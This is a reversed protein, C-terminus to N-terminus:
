RMNSWHTGWMCRALNATCRGRRSPLLVDSCCSLPTHLGSGQTLQWSPGLVTPPWCAVSVSRAVYRRRETVFANNYSTGKTNLGEQDRWIYLLHRPSPRHNTTNHDKGDEECFSDEGPIPLQTKMSWLKHIHVHLHCLVYISYEKHKIKGNYLM